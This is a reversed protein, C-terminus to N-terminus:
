QEARYIEMVNSGNRKLVSTIVARGKNVRGESIVTFTTSQTTIIDRIRTKRYLEELSASVNTIDEAKEFPNEERYNIVDEVSKDNLLSQYEPDEGMSLVSLIEPPATNINIKGSSHVTIFPELKEFIERNIGKVLKLEYISDFLDNKPQYPPDLSTYYSSEAGAPRPVDDSDLWDLIPDIILPDIGLNTLLAEFIAVMKTNESIGNSKILSNLNIKREEDIVRVLAEGEGFQIPPSPRSWIEDLTDFNNMDGDEKLAIIAADIGGLAIFRAKVREEFTSTLTIDRTTRTSSSIIIVTVLSLVLLTLM